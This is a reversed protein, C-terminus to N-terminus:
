SNKNNSNENYRSGYFGEDPMSQIRTSFEDCKVGTLLAPICIHPDKNELIKLFPKQLQVAYAPFFILPVSKLEGAYLIM